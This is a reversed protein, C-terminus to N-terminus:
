QDFYIGYRTRKLRDDWNEGSLVDFIISSEESPLFLCSSRPFKPNEKSYLHIYDEICWNKAQLCSLVADIDQKSILSFRIFSIKSLSLGSLEIKFIQVSMSLAADYAGTKNCLKFISHFCLKLETYTGSSNSIDVTRAKNIFFKTNSVLVDFIIDYPLAKPNQKRAVALDAYGVRYYGDQMNFIYEEQSALAKDGKATRKLIPASFRNELTSEDYCEMLQKAIDQKDKLPVIGAERLAKKLENAHYSEIRDKLSGYKMYGHEILESQVKEWDRTLRYLLYRQPPSDPRHNNRAYLVYIEDSTIKM